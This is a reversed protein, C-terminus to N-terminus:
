IVTRGGKEEGKLFEITCITNCSIITWIDRLNGESELM